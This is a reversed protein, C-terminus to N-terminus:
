AGRIESKLRMTCDKLRFLIVRYIFRKLSKRYLDMNLSFQLSFLKEGYVSPTLNFIKDFIYVNKSM